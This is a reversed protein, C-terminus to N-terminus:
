SKSALRKAELDPALRGSTRSWVTVRSEGVQGPRMANGIIPDYNPLCARRCEVVDYNVLRNYTAVNVLDPLERM